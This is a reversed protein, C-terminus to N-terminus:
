TTSATFTFTAARSNTLAPPHEVIITEPPNADAGDFIHRDADPRHQRGPRDRAGRLRLPGGRDAAGAVPQRVAGVCSRRCRSGPRSPEPEETLEIEVLRCEFQLQDTSTKDDSGTFTFAVTELTDQIPGTLYEADPPVYRGAAAPGVFEYAGTDCNGNQPRAIGRQDTEPCPRRRVDIALSGYPLAHTLTPGGNDAIADLAFPTASRDRAEARDLRVRQETAPPLLRHQDPLAACDSSILGSTPQGGGDLNGGESTVYWDCSGGALSGGVISNRM